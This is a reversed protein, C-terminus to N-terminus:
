VFGAEDSESVIMHFSQNFQNPIVWYVSSVHVVLMINYRPFYLMTFAPWLHVNKESSIAVLKQVASCLVYM